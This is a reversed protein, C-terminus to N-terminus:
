FTLILTSCLLLMCATLVTRFLSGSLRRDHFWREVTEDDDTVIQCARSTGECSPRNIAGVNGWACIPLVAIDNSRNTPNTPQREKVGYRRFRIERKLPFRTAPAFTRWGQLRKGIGYAAHM